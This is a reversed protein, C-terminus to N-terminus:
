CWSRCRGVSLTSKEIQQHGLQFRLIRGRGHIGCLHNTLHQGHVLEILQDVDVLYQLRSKGLGAARPRSILRYYSSVLIGSKEIGSEPNVALEFASETIEFLRALRFVM